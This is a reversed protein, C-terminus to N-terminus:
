EQALLWADIQSWQEFLWAEIDDRPLEAAPIRWLRVRVRADLLAGRVLEGLGNARELM